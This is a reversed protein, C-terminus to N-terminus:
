TRRVTRRTKARHSRKKQIGRRKGGEMEDNSDVSYSLEINNSRPRVNELIPPMLGNERIFEKIYEIFNAPNFQNYKDMFLTGNYNYISHIRHAMKSKKRINELQTILGDHALMSELFIIMRLELCDYLELYISYCLLALDANINCPQDVKKGFSKASYRKGNYEICSAGFDFLMISFDDVHQKIGINNVKFDRHVFHHRRYLNMLVNASNILIHLVFNTDLIESASCASKLYSLVDGDIREMEIFISSYDASRYMNYIKVINRGYTIDNGLIFQIFVEIFIDRLDSNLQTLAKTYKEPYTANHRLGFHIKQEKIIRNPRKENRIRSIQGYSGSAIPIVNTMLNLDLVPLQQAIYIFYNSKPDYNDNAMRKVLEATVLPDINLVSAFEEIFPNVPATNARNIAVSM